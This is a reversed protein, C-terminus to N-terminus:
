RKKEYKSAFLMEVEKKLEKEKELEAKRKKYAQWLECDKECTKPRTRKECDRCPSQLLIDITPRETWM